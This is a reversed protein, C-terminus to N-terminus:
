LESTKKTNDIIKKGGYIMGVALLLIIGSNIPVSCPPPWCPAPGPGPPPPQSFVSNVVFPSVSFLLILVINRFKTKM